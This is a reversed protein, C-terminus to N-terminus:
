RCYKEEPMRKVYPSNTFANVLSGSLPATREASAPNVVQARDVAAIKRREVIRYRLAAQDAKDSGNADRDCAYLDM